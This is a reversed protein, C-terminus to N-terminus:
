KHTRGDQIWKPFASIWLGETNKRRKKRSQVGRKQRTIPVTLLYREGIFQSQMENTQVM